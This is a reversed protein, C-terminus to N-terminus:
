KVHSLNRMPMGLSHLPSVIEPAVCSDYFSVLKPLLTNNWYDSNFEIRSVSIGKLTFVVFDCWPRNGIAMQGQVQAFYPHKESLVVQQSGDLGCQLTCYFGSTGCAEVATINRHAFPCKVELFGFPHEPSSPDFVAGDPTAGLFPHLHSVLFGSAAVLLEEHEHSNQYKIYEKVAVSEQQIGWEIAPANIQRPQIIRLVLKNPPTTDRRQLVLGFLSATLRYRRANFWHLSQRQARTSQEIKRIVDEMVNLSAKFAAITEKLESANPLAPTVQSSTSEASQEYNENCQCFSPDLLLSVCLQEGRIKDLFNPLRQNATGRYKVPRPDFDEVAKVVQKSAVGYTHKKFVAEVIQLNSEKRKKPPKWQCAYSTVPLNDEDEESLSRNGPQLQFAVPTM